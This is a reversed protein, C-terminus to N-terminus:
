LEQPSVIEIERFGEKIIEETLSEIEEGKSSLKEFKNVLDLLKNERVEDGTNFGLEKLKHMVDVTLDVKAIV